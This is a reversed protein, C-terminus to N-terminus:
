LVLTEEVSTTAPSSITVTTSAQEGVSDTATLTVVRDEVWATTLFVGSATDLTAVQTENDTLVGDAYACGPATASFTYEGSGAVAVCKVYDGPFLKGAYDTRTPAGSLKLTIRAYKAGHDLLAGLHAVAAKRAHDAFEYTGFSASASSARYLHVGKALAASYVPVVTSYDFLEKRSLVRLLSPSGLSTGDNFVSVLLPTSPAGLIAGASTDLTVALTWSSGDHIVSHTVKLQAV